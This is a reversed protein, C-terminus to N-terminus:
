GVESVKFSLNGYVGTKNAMVLSRSVEHVVAKPCGQGLAWPLLSDSWTIAPQSARSTSIAAVICSVADAPPFATVWSRVTTTATATISSTSSSIFTGAANYWFLRVTAGAGNVWASATVKKGPLVPTRTSGFYLTVSPDSNVLSRASYLGNGLYQSGALSIVSAIKAAPGCSSVEPTLLNALPADVSVFWFPGPGWAGTAFQSLVAEDAATTSDSMGLSWTRASRQRVQAKRVGEITDKFSYRSELQVDQQAPCKVGIMRGLEGLYIM